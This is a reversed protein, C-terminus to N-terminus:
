KKEPPPPLPMWHTAPFPEDNRDFWGETGPKDWFHRRQWAIFETRWYSIPKHWYGLIETGDKPATDIPQWGAVAMESHDSVEFKALHEADHTPELSEVPFMGYSDGDFFVYKVLTRKECQCPRLADKNEGFFRVTPVDFLKKCAVCAAQVDLRDSM